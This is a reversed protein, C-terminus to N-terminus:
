SMVGYRNLYSVLDRQTQLALGYVPSTGLANSLGLDMDVSEAAHDNLVRRLMVRQLELQFGVGIENLLQVTPKLHECLRRYRDCCHHINVQAVRADDGPPIDFTTFIQQPM